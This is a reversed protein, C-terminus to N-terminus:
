VFIFQDDGEGTIAPAALSLVGGLHPSVASLYDDPLVSIERKDPHPFDKGTFSPL